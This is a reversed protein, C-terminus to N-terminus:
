SVGASGSGRAAQKTHETSIVQVVLRRPMVLEFSVQDGPQVRHAQAFHQWGQMAAPHCVLREKRAPLHLQLYVGCPAPRSQGLM